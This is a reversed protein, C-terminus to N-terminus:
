DKKYRMLNGKPNMYLLQTRINILIALWLLGQRHRHYVPSQGVEQLADATVIGTNLNTAIRKLLKLWGWKDKLQVKTSFLVLQMGGETLNHHNSLGATDSKAGFCYEREYFSAPDQM